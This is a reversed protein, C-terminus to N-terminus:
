KLIKVITEGNFIEFLRDILQRVRRRASSTEQRAPVRADEVSQKETM